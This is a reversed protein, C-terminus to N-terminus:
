FGVDLHSSPIDAKGGFASMTKAIRRLALGRARWAPSLGRHRVAKPLRDWIPNVIKKEVTRRQVEGITIQQNGFTMPGRRRLFNIAHTTAETKSRYGEVHDFLDARV